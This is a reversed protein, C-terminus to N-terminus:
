VLRPKEEVSVKGVRKVRVRSFRSDELDQLVSYCRNSLGEAVARRLKEGVGDAPGHELELEMVLAVTYTAADRRPM